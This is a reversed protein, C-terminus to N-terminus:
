VEHVEVHFHGFFLVHDKLRKRQAKMAGLKRERAAAGSSASERGLHPRRRNGSQIRAQPLRQNHSTTRKTSTLAHFFSLALTLELVGFTRGPSSLVM